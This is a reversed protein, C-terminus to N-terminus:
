IKIYKDVNILEKNTNRTNPRIKRFLIILLNYFEIIKSVKVSSANSFGNLVHKKIQNKQMM